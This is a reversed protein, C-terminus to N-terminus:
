ISVKREIGSNSANVFFYIAVIIFTYDNIFFDAMQSIIIMLIPIGIIANNMQAKKILTAMLAMFIVLGPIGLEVLISLFMNHAHFGTSGTIKSGIHEAFVGIGIGTVPKKMIESTAANWLRFRLADSGESSSSEIPKSITLETSDRGRNFLINQWSFLDSSKLGLRETYGTFFLLCLILTIITIIRLLQFKKYIGLLILGSVLILWANRSGSLSNLVIFLPLSIFFELKSILRHNNLILALIAGIAMFVGFQNPGQVISSIRPYHDPYRLLNLLGIHPFLCELVGFLSIILMFYFLLRYYFRQNIGRYTIILVSFFVIFYVSYKLSYKVATSGFESFLSSGWMWLYLAGLIILLDQHVRFIERLWNLNLLIIAIGLLTLSLYHCGFNGNSLKIRSFTSLLLLLTLMIQNINKLNLSSLQNLFSNFNNM